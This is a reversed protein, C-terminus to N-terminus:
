SATSSCTWATAFASAQRSLLITIADYPKAPPASEVRGLSNGSKQRIGPIEKVVEFHNASRLREPLRRSRADCDWRRSSRTGFDCAIGDQGRGFM